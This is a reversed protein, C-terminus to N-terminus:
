PKAPANTIVGAKASGDTGLEGRIQVGSGAGAPHIGLQLLEAGKLDFGYLGRRLLDTRRNENLEAQVKRVQARLAALDNFKRELEGKEALLRKLERELQARNGESAGLKRETEKIRAGLTTIDGNLLEMKKTLADKEVELESIKEDRKALEAKAAAAAASADAAAKDLAATAASWRNSFASLEDGRQTLQAGLTANVQKQESLKATTEVVDNSLGSIRVTAVSQEDHAVQSAHYWGLGLGLCVLVLVLSLAKSNM